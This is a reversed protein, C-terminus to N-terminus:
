IACFEAQRDWFHIKQILPSLLNTFQTSTFDMCGACLRDRVPIEDSRESMGLRRRRATGIFLM